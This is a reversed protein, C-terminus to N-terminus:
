DVLGDLNGKAAMLGPVFGLGPLLVICTMILRYLVAVRLRARAYIFPNESAHGTSSLYSTLGVDTLPQSGFIQDRSTLTNFANHRSRSSHSPLHIPIQERQQQQQQQQQAQHMSSRNLSRGAKDYVSALWDVVRANRGTSGARKLRDQVAAEKRSADALSLSEFNFSPSVFGYPSALPSHTMHIERALFASSGPIHIPGPRHSRPPLQNGELFADPSSSPLIFSSSEEQKAIPVRIVVTGSSVNGFALSEDTSSQHLQMLSTPIPSSPLSALPYASQHHLKINPKTRDTQQLQGQKVICLDEPALSPHTLKDRAHDLVCPRPSLALNQNILRITRPAHTNASALERQNYLRKNLIGPPMYHLKTQSAALKARLENDNPIKPVPPISPAPIVPLSQNMDFISTTDGNYSSAATAYTGSLHNSEVTSSSVLCRPHLTLVKQSSNRQDPHFPSVGRVTPERISDPETIWDSEAVMTNHRTTAGGDYSMRIEGTVRSIEAEDLNLSSRRQRLYRQRWTPSSEEYLSSSGPPIPAGPREPLEDINMISSSEMTEPASCDYPSAQDEESTHSARLFEILQGLSEQKQHGKKWAM